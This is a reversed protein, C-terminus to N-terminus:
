TLLRPGARFMVLTPDRGGDRDAYYDREQDDGRDDPEEHLGRDGREDDSGNDEGDLHREIAPLNRPVPTVAFDASGRVATRQGTMEPPIDVVFQPPQLALHAVLWRKM